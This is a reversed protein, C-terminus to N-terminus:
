KVEEIVRHLLYHQKKKKKIKKYTLFRFILSILYGTLSKVALFAVAWVAPSYVGTQTVGYSM